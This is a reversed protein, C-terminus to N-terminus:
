RAENGMFSGDEGVLEDVFMWGFHGDAPDHEIVLLPEMPEPITAPRALGVLAERQIATPEDTLSVSDILKEVDMNVEGKRYPDSEPM